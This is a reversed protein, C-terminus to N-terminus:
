INRTSRGKALPSNTQSSASKRSCTLFISLFGKFVHKVVDSMDFQIWYALQKYNKAYNQGCPVCAFNKDLFRFKCSSCIYCKYFRFINSWCCFDSRWPYSVFNAFQKWNQCYHFGKPFLSEVLDIIENKTSLDMNKGSTLGLIKMKLEEQTLKAGPYIEGEMLGEPVVNHFDVTEEIRMYEDPTKQFLEQVIFKRHHFGQLLGAKRPMQRAENQM